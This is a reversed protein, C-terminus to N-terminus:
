MCDGYCSLYKPKICERSAPQELRIKQSFTLWSYNYCVSMIDLLSLLPQWCGIHFTPYLSLNWSVTQDLALRGTMKQLVWCWLSLQNDSQLVLYGSLPVATIGRKMKKIMLQLIVEVTISHIKTIWAYYSGMQELFSSNWVKYFLRSMM